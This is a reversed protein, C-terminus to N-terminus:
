DCYKFWILYSDNDSILEASTDANHFEEGSLLVDEDEVLKDYRTADKSRTIIHIIVMETLSDDEHKYLFATDGVECANERIYYDLQEDTDENYSSLLWNEEAFAKKVAKGLIGSM